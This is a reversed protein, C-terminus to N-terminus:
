HYILWLVGSVILAALTAILAIRAPRALGDLSPDGLGRFAGRLLWSLAKPSSFAFGGFGQLVALHRDRLHVLTMPWFLVFAMVGAIAVALAVLALFMGM